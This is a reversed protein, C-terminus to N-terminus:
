CCKRILTRCGLPCARSGQAIATACVTIGHHRPSYGQTPDKGAVLSGQAFILPLANGSTSIGAQNDVPNRINGHTDKTRRLRVLFSDAQPAASKDAAIFNKQQYNDLENGITEAPFDANVGANLAVLDGVPNNDLNLQVAPKYVVIDGAKPPTITQFANADGVGGTIQLVPGACISDSQRHGCRRRGLLGSQSSQACGVAFM